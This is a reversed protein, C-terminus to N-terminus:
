IGRINLVHIDETRIVNNLAYRVADITHNNKDPYASIYKGDKTQEYEYLAFEKYSEPTRRKDIIIENLDQLWKIGHEVSDQGKQAPYINLGYSGLEAISKPEASDAFIVMNGARKEKIKEAAVSNKLKQSYIEDLIYLKRNKRDFAVKIWVFPDVAFGFDVGYYFYSLTNIEGGTIKREVVNEFVAGGTGTAVGLYEHEYAIPNSAKLAEAESIFTSGLWQPPADLYTSHFNLRDPYEMLKEVNVWNDRSKPPNFTYFFWFRDGGRGLSQNVSRIEEMGCFEDLEEYWGIGFYGKKIKISKLKLKDDLGRFLIKQGTPRYTMEMPSVTYKWEHATGIKDVAWLMQELVSTRLTAGTKRFIVANIDPNRMMILPIEESVFSSKLSGRGGDLMYHTYDHNKIARHVNYYNPSIIDSIKVDYM